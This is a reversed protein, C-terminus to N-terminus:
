LPGGGFDSNGLLGTVGEYIIMVLGVSLKNGRDICLSSFSVPQSKRIMVLPFICVRKRDFMITTNGSRFDGDCALVYFEKGFSPM